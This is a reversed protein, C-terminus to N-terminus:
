AAQWSFFIRTAIFRGIQRACGEPDAWIESGTFRLVAIGQSQLWRDKQRDRRAQVKTREHFDHGDCEIALRVWKGDLKKCQIYFDVRYDGITKQSTVCWDDTPGDEGACFTNFRFEPVEAALGLPLACGLLEEIPSEANAILDGCQHEYNEFIHRWYAEGLAHLKKNLASHDQLPEQGRGRQRRAWTLAANSM